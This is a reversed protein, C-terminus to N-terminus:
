EARKRGTLMALVFNERHELSTVILGAIHLRILAVSSWAGFERVEELWKLGLYMDLTM